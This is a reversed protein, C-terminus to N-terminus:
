TTLRALSNMAARIEKVSTTLDGEPVFLSVTLWDALRTWDLCNRGDFTQIHIGKRRAEPQFGEAKRATRGHRPVM